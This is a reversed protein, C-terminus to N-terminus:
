KPKKDRRPTSKGFVRNDGGDRSTNALRDHEPGPQVCETQPIRVRAGSKPDELNVM